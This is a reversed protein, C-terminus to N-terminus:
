INLVYWHMTWVYVENIRYYPICQFDCIFIYSGLTSLHLSIIFNWFSSLDSALEAVLPGPWAWRFFYVHMVYQDCLSCLM